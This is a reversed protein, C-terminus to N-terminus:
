DTHLGINELDNIFLRCSSLRVVRVLIEGEFPVTSHVDFSGTCTVHNVTVAVKDSHGSVKKRKVKESFGGFYTTKPAKRWFYQVM